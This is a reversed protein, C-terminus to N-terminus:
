QRDAPRVRDAVLRDVAAVALHRQEREAVPDGWVSRSDPGYRGTLGAGVPQGPRARYAQAVRLARARRGPIARAASRGRRPPASPLLNRVTVPPIAADSPQSKKM